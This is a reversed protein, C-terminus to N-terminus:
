RLLQRITVRWTTAVTKDYRTPSIPIASEDALLQAGAADWRKFYEEFTICRANIYAAAQELALPLFKLAAAVQMASSTPDGTASGVRQQLFTLAEQPTFPVVERCCVDLPWRSNRSTVIVAGSLGQGFDRLLDAAIAPNDVSDCILLWGTNTRLWSLVAAFRLELSDHNKEPLDLVASLSAIRERYTGSDGQTVWLRTNYKRALRWAYEIAIQTKGVGGLGCLVVIGTSKHGAFATEIFALDTARSVFKPNQLYPLNQLRRFRQTPSQQSASTRLQPFRALLERSLNLWSDIDSKGQTVIACGAPLVDRLM